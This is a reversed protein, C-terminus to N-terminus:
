KCSDVVTVGFEKEFVVKQGSIPNITILEAMYKKFGPTTYRRQFLAVGDKMPLVQGNVKILPEFFKFSEYKFLVIEAYYQDGLYLAVMETGKVRLLINQLILRIEYARANRLTKSLCDDVSLDPDQLKLDLIARKVEKEEDTLLVISDQYEAVMKHVLSSLENKDHDGQIRKTEIEFFANQLKTSLGCIRQARDSYDLSVPSPYDMHSKRIESFLFASEKELIQNALRLSNGTVLNLERGHEKTTEIYLWSGLALILAGYFLHISYRMFISKEPFRLKNLFISPVIM